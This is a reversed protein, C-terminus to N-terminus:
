AKEAPAAAPTGPRRGRLPGPFAKESAAELEDEHRHFYAWFVGLLICIVIFIGIGIAELLTNSKKGLWWAGLGWICDWVLVAAANTVAFRRWDMANAGALFSEFARVLMVLRGIFVIPRGYRLFLYQLFKLRKENVRVLRGYRRLFSFGYERGIWFACNDGIIAGAFAAVLVLIISLKHTEGAYIAAAILATEGPVFFVGFGELAALGFVVYYGWTAIAHDIIGIPSM